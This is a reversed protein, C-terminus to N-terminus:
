KESVTPNREIKRAHASTAYYANYADIKWQPWNEIERRTAQYIDSYGSEDREGSM